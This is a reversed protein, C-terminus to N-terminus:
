FMSKMGLTYQIPMPTIANTLNEWPSYIMSSWNKNFVNQDYIDDVDTITSQGAAFALIGLPNDIFGKAVVRQIRTAYKTFMFLGIDNLYQVMTGTPKNYNVFADWTQFTVQEEYKKYALTEQKKGNKVEYRNPAKQMKLQYLTARAVFDSYQTLQFLFDYIPTGNTMYLQRMVKKIPEPTNKLLKSQKVAKTIKGVSELADPDIEEIIAQYMGKEMLPHVPSHELRALLMNKKNSEMPLATGVREKMEIRNLEKRTEVYERISHLNTIQAKFVENPSFGETVCYMFNSTINGLLVAPVRMLIQEKAMMSITKMLHEAFAIARKTIGSTHRSIYKNRTLSYDPIGYLDQLWDERVYLGEKEKNYMEAINKIEKPTTKWADRLFKNDSDEELKVYNHGETDTHTSPNMNNDMDDIIFKLMILNRDRAKSRISQTAFMKSLVEIGDENMDMYNRKNSTSMTIRYDKTSDRVSHFKIENTVPTYGYSLKNIQAITLERTKMAKLINEQAKNAKAMLKGFADRYKDSSTDNIEERVDESLRSGITHSGTIMFGAGNRRDPTSYTRRYLALDDKETLKNDNLKKIFQFGMKELARRESAPAVRPEISSDLITKTYGKIVNNSGVGRGEYSEKVFQKHYQLFNAIGKNPLSNFAEIDLTDQDLLSYYTALKDVTSILEKKDKDLMSTFELSSLSTEVIDNANLVLAENGINNNMFYALAKAQNIMLLGNKKYKLLKDRLKGIETHLKDKNTILEKVNAIDEETIIDKFLCQLDSYLGISTLAKSEAKDLSKKDFGEYLGAKVTSEIGKAVQEERRTLNILIDLRKTQEDSDQVDRMLSMLTGQQHFLSMERLETFFQNRLKSSTLLLTISKLTKKANIYPNSIHNPIVDVDKIWGKNDAINTLYKLLNSTKANGYKFWEGAVKFLSEVPALITKNVSQNARSDAKSLKYVLRDIEELVNKASTNGNRVESILNSLKEGNFLVNWMGHVISIITDLLSMKDKPAKYSITSNKIKDRLKANTMVHAITEALATDNKTDPNNFLYDWTRNAYEKYMNEKAKDYNSPMFDEPTIAKSLLAQIDRLHRVDNSIGLENALKLASDTAAHVLEHTYIEALSKGSYPSLGTTSDIDTKNDINITVVDGELNGINRPLEKVYQVRLKELKSSDLRSIVDKLHEIHSDEEVKNSTLKAYRNLVDVLKIRAKIDTNAEQLLKTRDNSPTYGEYDSNRSTVETFLVDSLSMDANVEALSSEGSPLVGGDMNGISHQQAYFKLRERDIKERSITCESLAEKATVKFKNGKVTVEKVKGNIGIAMPVKHKFDPNAEVYENYNDYVEIFRDYIAGYSSYDKGLLYSVKNYTQTNKVNDMASMIIADHVPTIDNDLQGITTALAMADKFHIPLVAGSLKTNTMKRSTGYVNFDTTASVSGYKPNYVAKYSSASNNRSYDRETDFLLMGENLTEGTPLQVAPFFKKFTEKMIREKEVVYLIGAHVKKSKEIEAQYVKDFMDFMTRFMTNQEENYQMYEKFSNELAVWTPNGYTPTILHTIYTLVSMRRRGHTSNVWMQIDALSNKQLLKYLNKGNVLKSEIMKFFASLEKNEVVGTKQEELYTDLMGEFADETMARITSSKGASYGFVMVIPKFFKRLAKTVNGEEDLTPLLPKLLKYDAELEEPLLEIPNNEKDTGIRTSRTYGEIVAGLDKDVERLEYSSEKAFTQYMDTFKKDSKLEHATAVKDGDSFIGLRNGFSDVIHQMPIDLIRIFYGSTTSDNEIAISSKFPKGNARHMLRLHQAVILAQGRNEIGKLGVEKWKDEFEKDTKTLLDHYLEEVKDKDLATVREGLNVIDQETGKLSDFAQAIAFYTVYKHDKNNMDYERYFEKPTCLFRQLKDVQPNLSTSTMYLRGSKIQRWNFYLEQNNYKVLNDIQAQLVIDKNSHSVLEDKTLGTNDPTSGENLGTYGSVKLFQEKNEVIDNLVESNIVYPTARLKELTNEIVDSVKGLNNSGRRDRGLSKPKHTYPNKDEHIDELAYREKCRKAEETLSDSFPIKKDRTGYDRFRQKVTQTPKIFAVTATKNADNSEHGLLENIRSREALNIDILGQKKALKLAFLGFGVSVREAFGDEAVNSNKNTTLGLNNMIDMGLESAVITAPVGYQTTISQSGNKEARTATRTDVGFLSLTRDTDFTANTTSHIDALHQEMSYVVSALIDKKVKLMPVKKSLDIDFLVRLYPNDNLMKAFYGSSIRQGKETSIESYITEEAKSALSDTIYNDKDGLISFVLKPKKVVLQEKIPVQEDTSFAENIVKTVIFDAKNITRAEEVLISNAKDNDALYSLESQIKDLKKNITELTNDTTEKIEPEVSLENKNEKNGSEVISSEESKVRNKPTNKDYILEQKKLSSRNTMNKNESSELAQETPKLPTNLTNNKSLKAALADAFEKRLERLEQLVKEGEPDNEFIDKKLVKGLSDINNKEYRLAGIPLEAIPTKMTRDAEILGKATKLTRYREARPTHGKEYEDLRDSLEKVFRMGFNKLNLITKGATSDTGAVELLKAGIKNMNDINERLEDDSLKTVDIDKNAEVRSNVLKILNNRKTVTNNNVKSQRRDTAVTKNITDLLTDANNFNKKIYNKLKVLQVNSLSNIATTAASIAKDNAKGSILNNLHKTLINADKDTLNNKDNSIKKGENNAYEKKYTTNLSAQVDKIVRYAARAQSLLAQQKSTDSDKPMSSIAKNLRFLDKSIEQIVKHFKSSDNKVSTASIKVGNYLTVNTLKGDKLKSISDAVKILKNSQNIFMRHLNDRRWDMDLEIKKKDIDSLNENSLKEKDKQYEKYDHEYGTSSFRIENSVRNIEKDIQEDSLQLSKGISRLEETRNKITEDTVEKGNNAVVSLDIDSNRIVERFVEVDDKVGLAKRLNDRDKDNRINKIAEIQKKFLESAAKMATSASVNSINNAVKTLQEITSNKDNVVENAKTDEETDVEKNSTTKNKSNEVEEKVEENHKADTRGTIVQGTVQTAGSLAGGTIGGALASFMSENSTANKALRKLSESSTEDEPRYESLWNQATTQAGEQLFEGIASEPIAKASNWLSRKEKFAKDAINSVKKPLFRNVNFGVLLSEPIMTALNGFFNMAMENSNMERNNNAKFDEATQLTADVTAALAGSMAAVFATGGTATAIASGAAMLGMQPASEALMRDVQTVLIGAAKLINGEEFQKKAELMKNAYDRRTSIKTGAMADALEQGTVSSAIRQWKKQDVLSDPAHQLIRAGMQIAASKAMDFTEGLRGDTDYGAIIERSQEPHLFTNYAEEREKNRKTDLSDKLSFRSNLYPNSAAMRSVNLGTSPNVLDVLLRGHEDKGLVKYSVGLSEPNQIDGYISDKNYPQFSRPNASLQNYMEQAAYKDVNLYDQETLQEIPKGTLQSIFKPQFKQKATSKDVNQKTDATDYSNMGAIRVPVVEGNNLRMFGSDGDSLQLISGEQYGTMNQQIRTFNHQVAKMKEPLTMAIDMYKLHSPTPNNISENDTSLMTM